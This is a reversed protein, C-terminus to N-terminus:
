LFCSRKQLFKQTNCISSPTGMDSWFGNIKNIKCSKKNCYFNNVDTIELEGRKSPKINKIVNYVYNTYLYLGAVALNSKPSEPKEEIIGDSYVGFQNANETEKVFITADFNSNQFSNFENKFNDEFFNDGLIVAFPDKGTFSSCLGLASAIGLVSSSEDQIKYTFNAQHEKGDGLYEIIKGCHDRSSIILIDTVGSKVLTSVPYYIMPVAGSESYVPLLHKNIKNTIPLMRSGKGGALIVGKIM